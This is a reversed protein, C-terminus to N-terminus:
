VFPLFLVHIQIQQISIPNATTTMPRKSRRNQNNQLQLMTMMVLITNTTTIASYQTTLPSPSPGPGPGPGPSVESTSAHLLLCSVRTALSSIFFRPPDWFRPDTHMRAFRVDSKGGIAINAKKWNSGMIIIIINHERIFLYVSNSKSRVWCIM